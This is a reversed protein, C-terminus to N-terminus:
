SRGGGFRNYLFIVVAFAILCGIIFLWTPGADSDWWPCSATPGCSAVVSVSSALPFDM